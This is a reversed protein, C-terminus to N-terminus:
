ALAKGTEQAILEQLRDNSIGANESMDALIDDPYGNKIATRLMQEAKKAEGESRLQEDYSFLNRLMVFEETEIFGKLFGQSICEQRAKEFAEDLTLGASMFDEKLKHFYAYGTLVNDPNNIM